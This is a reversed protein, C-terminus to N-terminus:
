AEPRSTTLVGHVLVVPHQAIRDTGHSIQQRCSVGSAAIVADPAARVAPFLRMEGIRMSVDYHEFGFSGAMGCCGADLVTLKSGAVRELLSVTPKMAGAAKQHCHGHFVVPRQRNADPVPLSGDDLAEVLLEDVLRAQRAISKAREDGRSLSVLEDQLTFVCSPECGVIPTGAAAFPALRDILQRHSRKAHDLLGKSIQSRACCVDDVLRVRWGARELLEISAKGIEPETYATFSDAFFVVDGRTGVGAAPRARFWAGLSQRAFRPLPRRRDIGYRWEAIRRSLGSGSVVNAIGHVASGLRNWRRANGFFRASAPTGHLAYRHYLAESKLTAMDVSM